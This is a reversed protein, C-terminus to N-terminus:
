QAFFISILEDNSLGLVTKIKSIEGRYFRGNKIKNYLSVMNIETEEALRRVNYGRAALAAKFLAPCFM